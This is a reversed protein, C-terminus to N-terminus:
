LAYILQYVDKEERYLDEPLPFNFYLGWDNIIDNNVSM